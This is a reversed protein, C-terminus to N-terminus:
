TMLDSENYRDRLAIFSLSSSFYGTDRVGRFKTASKTVTSIQGSSSSGIQKQIGM